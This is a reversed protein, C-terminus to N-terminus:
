EIDDFEGRYDVHARAQTLYEAREMRFAVAVWLCFEADKNNGEARIARSKAKWVDFSDNLVLIATTIDRLHELQIM